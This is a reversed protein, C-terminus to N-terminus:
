GSGTVPTTSTVAAPETPDTPKENFRADAIPAAVTFYGVAALVLLGILAYLVIRLM